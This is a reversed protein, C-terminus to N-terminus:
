LKKKGQVTSNTAPNEDKTKTTTEADSTHKELGRFIWKEEIDDDGTIGRSFDKFKFRNFDKLIAINVILENPLVLQYGDADGNAKSEEVLPDNPSPTFM